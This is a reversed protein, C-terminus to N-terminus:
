VHALEVGGFFEPAEEERIKEVYKPRAVVLGCRCFPHNDRYSLPRWCQPCRECKSGIILVTRLKAQIADTQVEEPFRFARAM